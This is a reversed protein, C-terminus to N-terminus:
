TKMKMIRSFDRTKIVYIYIGSSLGSPSFSIEHYGADFKRNLLIALKQGLVNYLELVVFEPVPLAFKIKTEPNFPNPYNQFL